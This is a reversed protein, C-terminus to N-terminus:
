HVVQNRGDFDYAFATILQSDYANATLDYGDYEGATLANDRHFTEVIYDIVEPITEMEGTVPNEMELINIFKNDIYTKLDAAISDTRNSQSVYFAEDQQNIYQRIILNYSDIASQVYPRMRDLDYANIQEDTYAKLIVSAEAIMEEVEAKTIDFHDVIEALRALEEAFEKISKLMWDANQRGTDVYPYDYNYAM